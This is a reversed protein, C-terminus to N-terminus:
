RWDSLITMVSMDWELCPYRVHEQENSNRKPKMTQTQFQPVQKNQWCTWHILVFVCTHFVGLPFIQVKSNMLLWFFASFTFTTKFYSFHSAIAWPLFHTTINTFISDPNQLFAYIKQHLLKPPLPQPVVKANTHIACHWKPFFSSLLQHKKLKWTCKALLDMCHRVSRTVKKSLIVTNWWFCYSIIIHQCISNFINLVKYDFEFMKHLLWQCCMKTLENEDNCIM